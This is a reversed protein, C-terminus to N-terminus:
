MFMFMFAELYVQWLYVEAEIFHLRSTGSARIPIYFKNLNQSSSMPTIYHNVFLPSLACASFYVMHVTVVSMYLIM